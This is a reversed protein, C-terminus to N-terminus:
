IHKGCVDTIDNQIDPSLYRENRASGLIHKRLKDDIQCRFRLPARLNGDKQAPKDITLPGSGKHGRLALENEGCFIISEIIPKLMARNETREKSRQSYILIVDEM